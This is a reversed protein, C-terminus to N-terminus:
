AGAHARHDEENEAIVVIPKGVEVSDGADALIESVVGDVPSEFEVEIKDTSVMALVEGEKVRQGSEVLWEVITGEEMSLGWKPLPYQEAM